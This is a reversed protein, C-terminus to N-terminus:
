QDKICDYKEQCYSRDEILSQKINYIQDPSFTQRLKEEMNIIYQDLITDTLLKYSIIKFNIDAKIFTDNVGKIIQNLELRRKLNDNMEEIKYVALITFPRDNYVEQFTEAYDVVTLSHEERLNEMIVFDPFWPLSGNRRKRRLKKRIIDVTYSKDIISDGILAIVKILSTDQDLYENLMRVTNDEDYIIKELEVVATQLIDTHKNQYFNLFGFNHLLFILLSLYIILSILLVVLCCKSSCKIKKKIKSDSKPDDEPEDDKKTKDTTKSKPSIDKVIDSTTQLSQNNNQIMSTTPDMANEERDSTTEAQNDAPVFAPFDLIIDHVNEMLDKSKEPRTSSSETLCLEMPSKEIISRHKEEKKYLNDTSKTDRENEQICEQLFSPLEYASRSIPRVIVTADSDSDCLETHLPETSSLKTPSSITPSSETPSPKMPSSETLSPKTSSPEMRSPETPSSKTPSSKTPFSKTSFLETLSPEPLSPEPSSPETPSPETLSSEMLSPKTSSPEMRSPETSSSKISSSKTPSSKTPFSKTSFLETLSPEPLSPEAPCPKAPSPETPSSRMPSPETPSLGISSPETLSPEMLSPEMLSSEISSPETRFSEMSSSATPSSEMRSPEKPSSKIPSSKTSFSKTSFLEMPSPETPSPETPSPETPSPESPFPETPSPETPSPETLSLETSSLKTPSPEKPSSEKSITEKPFPETSSLETSSKINDITSCPKEEKKYQNDIPKTDSENKQICGQSSPSKLELASKSTPQKIVTADSDSESLKINFPKASSLDMPSPVMSSLKIFSLEKLLKPSNMKDYPDIKEMITTRRAYDAFPESPSFESMSLSSSLSKEDTEHEEINISKSQKETIDSQSPQSVFDEQNLSAQEIPTESVDDDLIFSSSSKKDSENSKEGNTSESTEETIDSLPKRVFDQFLLVRESYTKLDDSILSSSSKKDSENSKEVNTSEPIEETIDSLSPRRVFDKRNLSDQEVPAIDYIVSLFSWDFKNKEINRSEAQKMTIDSQSSKSIFDEQNSPAQEIFTEHSPISPSSSKEDSENSKEVNTSKPQEETIDAQSSQSIFDEPNSPIQEISTKPVDHSSISPSSSKEDFENNKEVNTSKPQEETIDSQSPQSIFDEQNAPAQEISTEPVDHSPISPFSSKEDSENNKEVNTSKPQEETIDAQSSQSMFDEQNSPAQEISIEPVDHSPISLSSLKEDSENKQVNTSKPQEETIDSPSPQSMFDEQNSPAQEISIEPVDHSPISLSSLKEDSENKQVNTSKAQEETIDSPSPQSMFDEQNSPAQEISIEPVDHSPVSPSSLKEDSENKQVNTSKAQEETIDSQSPQSIFDEQKSPIQEISTEPVDHSLISPSSSKKDSENKEMNTSKPQEETIDSQSSQSVCDERNSSSQETKDPVDSSLISASSSKRDSESFNEINSSESPDEKIVSHSSVSMQRFEPKSYKSSKPQEKMISESTSPKSKEEFSSNPSKRQKELLKKRLNRREKFKEKEIPSKEVGLCTHKKSRNREEEFSSNSKSQEEMSSSKEPLNREEEFNSSKRQKEM